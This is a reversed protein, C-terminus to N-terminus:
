FKLAKDGFRSQLELPTLCKKLYKRHIENTCIFSFSVVSACLDNSVYSKIQLPRAAAHTGGRKALEHRAVQRVTSM